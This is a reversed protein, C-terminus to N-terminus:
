FKELIEVVIQWIGFAGFAVVCGVLYIWMMKKAEAKEDVGAVMLKIGLILGILVAIGVALESVISFVKNSIDKIDDQSIPDDLGTNKNTFDDGYSIIEDLDGKNKNKDALTPQKYIKSHEGSVGVDAHNEKIFEEFEENEGLEKPYLQFVEKAKTNLDAIMKKSDGGAIGDMHAQDSKLYEIFAKTKRMWMEASNLILSDTKGKETQVGILLKYIHKAQAYDAPKKCNELPVSFWNKWVDKYDPNEIADDATGGQSKRGELEGRANDMSTQIYDGLGNIGDQLLDGIKIGAASMGDMIGQDNLLSIWDPAYTIYDELDKNTFQEKPFRDIKIVQFDKYLDKAVKPNSGANAAYQKRLDKNEMIDRWNDAALSFKVNIFLVFLLMLIVILFSKKKM